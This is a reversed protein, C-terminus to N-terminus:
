GVVRAQSADADLEVAGRAALAALVDMAEQYDIRLRRQLLSATVRRSGSILETAEALLAEDVGGGGFLSQQRSGREDHSPVPTQRPLADPRPIAVVPESAAPLEGVTDAPIALDLSAPAPADHRDDASVAFASEAPASAEATAPALVEGPDGAEPRDLREFSEGADAVVAGHGQAGGNAPEAWAEDDAVPADGLLPAVPLPRPLGDFEGHMATQLGRLHDTVAPEVGSEVPAAKVRMREFSDSFFFDTALLLSAFTIAWVMVISPFYGVASVLTGALWAGLEGKHVAATVGGEGLNLFVGLMVTMAFLRGIRVLPRELRGTVFWITSWTVAMCFFMVAPALGFTRYITAIARQLPSTPNVVGHNVHFYVLASLCFVSAGIPLLPWLWEAATRSSRDQEATDLTSV